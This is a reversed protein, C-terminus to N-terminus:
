IRGQSLHFRGGECGQWLHVWGRWEVCRCIERYYTDTQIEMERLRSASLGSKLAAMEEEKGRLAVELSHVQQRLSAVLAGGGGSSVLQASSTQKM